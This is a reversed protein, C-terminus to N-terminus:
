ENDAEKDITIIAEKMISIDRGIVKLTTIVDEKVSLMPLVTGIVLWALSAAVLIVTIGLVISSKLKNNMYEM